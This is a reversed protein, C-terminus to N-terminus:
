YAGAAAGACTQALRARPIGIATLATLHFEVLVEAAARLCSGCLRRPVRVARVGSWAEIAFERVQDCRVRDWIGQPIPLAAGDATQALRAALRAQAGLALVVDARDRSDLEKWLVEQAERDGSAIIQALEYARLPAGWGTTM